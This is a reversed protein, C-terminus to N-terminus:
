LTLIDIGSITEYIKEEIDTIEKYERRKQAV